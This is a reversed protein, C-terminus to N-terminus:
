PVDGALRRGLARVEAALEDPTRVMFACALGVLFHAVRVLDDAGIRLLSRGAELPEVIGVARPVRVRAVEVDLGLEVECRWTYAELATGRQVQALPDPRGAPLAAPGVEEAAAMRDLRFTRWAVRGVDHAVCYWRGGQHVVASPDARRRTVAGSAATYSFRVRQGRRAARAVVALVEADVVSPAVVDPRVTAAELDAVRAWAAPPLVTELKAVVAAAAEDLGAVGAPGAARLGVSLAVAEQETLLLPPVARGRDLRYGGDPGPAAAIRYGLERLRVIDRRVTRTTTGTRVALEGATWVPTSQLLALIELLRALTQM